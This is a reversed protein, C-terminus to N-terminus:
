RGPECECQSGLTWPKDGTAAKILAGVGMLGGQIQANNSLPVLHNDIRTQIKAARAATQANPLQAQLARIAPVAAKAELSLALLGPTLAGVTASTLVSGINVCRLSKGGVAMQWGIDFAAGVLAGPLGYEGRPDIYSVPDGVVYAYFNKGGELGIPDESIFRGKVPDTYRARYFYLGTGDNERGTYQIPNNTVDVGVTQSEGYPSYAYSNHITPNAEDNLQAIVSNLADTLYLRSAAADRQGTPSIALRAIVEDLQLGVLLRHTLRGDRIEGLAQLGEYFYQVTAPLQGDRTISVQVRRGLADYVFSARLGPQVLGVLRNSADWRYETRDSPDQANTKSTLNGNADYTLEYRKDGGPLKLTMATMRNAADYTAQMPTDSLGTGNHNLTTRGIRQGRADYQYDIQEILQEGATGEGSLYRIQAMRDAADWGYIASPSRMPSALGCANVYRFRILRM